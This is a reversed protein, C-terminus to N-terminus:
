QLVVGQTRKAWSLVNIRVKIYSELEDDPTGPVSPVDPTGIHKVSTISLVYWNNRLMGYRGLYNNDQDKTPYIDTQTPGPNENENWPTLDDGFHKIRVPYYAYGGEYKGINVYKLQVNKVVSAVATNFDDASKGEKLKGNGTENLEVKAISQYGNDGATSLMETLGIIDAAELSKGEAILASVAEKVTADGNIGNIFDAKVAAELSTTTYFNGEDKNVLWFTGDEEAGDKPTFKVKLVARTTENQNQHSVDFMNEYCYLPAATFEKVDDKTVYTFDSQKYNTSYNPDMGGYIRYLKTAADADVETNGVFRYDATTLGTSSLNLWGDFNTVNHVLYSSKNTVDLAWNAVTYSLNEEGEVNGSLGSEDLTAKAVAREVYIDAANNGNIADSETKYIYDENVESLVVAKAGKLDTGYNVKGGKKDSLAANTMFFGANNFSLGTAKTQLEGINGSFTETSGESTKISPAGGDTPVTLIGNNNLVVLAYIKDTGNNKTISSIKKVIEKRTTIQDTTTGVNTFNSVDLNYGAKCEAVSESAGAFLLLIGNKVQYESALGDDFVDNAARTTKQTPLNIALSVYGSGNADWKGTGPDEVKDSSCGGLMLAALALPFLKSTRM